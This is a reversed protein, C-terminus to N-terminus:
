KAREKEISCQGVRNAFETNWERQEKDGVWKNPNPRMQKKVIKGCERYIDKEKDSVEFGTNNWFKTFTDMCGSLPIMLTLVAIMKIIKM